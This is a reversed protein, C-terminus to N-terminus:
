SKSNREHRKTGANQSRDETARRQEDLRQRGDQCGRPYYPTHHKEIGVIEAVEKIYKNYKKSSISPMSGGYKHPLNRAKSFFLLIAVEDSKQRAKYIWQGGEGERM